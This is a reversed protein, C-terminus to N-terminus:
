SGFWDDETDAPGSLVCYRPFFTVFCFLIKTIASISLLNVSFELVYLVKDLPLHFLAQISGVTVM